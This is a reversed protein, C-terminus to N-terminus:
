IESRPMSRPFLGFRGRGLPRRVTGCTQHNVFTVYTAASIRAHSTAGPPLCSHKQSTSTATIQVQMYETGGTRVFRSPMQAFTVIAIGRPTSRFTAPQDDTFVIKPTSAHYMPAIKPRKRRPAVVVFSKASM